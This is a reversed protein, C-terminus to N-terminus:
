VNGAISIKNKRIYNFAGVAWGGAVVFRLENTEELLGTIEYTLYQIQNLYSTFGPAFYDEGVKKGNLSVEYVGLATCNIWARKIKGAAKFSKLFNMPLPSLKEPVEYDLDTIWKGSWPTHLRGTQFVTAAKASAGSKTYATVEVTYEAFPMLPGEYRNNIQDKTNVEWDNVKILAHAFAEGPVDSDLSFSLIPAKDTVCDKELGEVTLSSIRLM